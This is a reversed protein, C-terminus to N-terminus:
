SSSFTNKCRAASQPAVIILEIFLAISIFLSYVVICISHLQPFCHSVILQPVKEHSDPQMSGMVTLQCPIGELALQLRTDLRSTSSMACFPQAQQQIWLLHLRLQQQQLHIQIQPETQIQM